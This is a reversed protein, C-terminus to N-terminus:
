QVPVDSFLFSPVKWKQSFGYGVQIWQLFQLVVQWPVHFWGQIGM